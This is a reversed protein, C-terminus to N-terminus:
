NIQNDLIKLITFMPSVRTHGRNLHPVDHV